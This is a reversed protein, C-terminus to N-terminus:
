SSQGVAFSVKRPVGGIGNAAVAAAAADMCSTPVKGSNTYAGSRTSSEATAVAAAKTPGSHVTHLSLAGECRSSYLDNEPTGSSSGGNSRLQHDPDDSAFNSCASTFAPGTLLEGGSSSGGSSGWHNGAAAARHYVTPSKHDASSRMLRDPSSNIQDQASHVVDADASVYEEPQQQRQQWGPLVQDRDPSQSRIVPLHQDHHCADSVKSNKSRIATDHDSFMPGGSSGDGNGSSSGLHTAFDSQLSSALSLKRGSAKAPTGPANTTSRKSVITSSSSAATCGDDTCTPLTSSTVNSSSSGNSVKRMIWDVVGGYRSGVSGDSSANADAAAAAAEFAADDGQQQQQQQCHLSKWPLLLSLLKVGIPQANSKVVDANPHDKVGQPSSSSSGLRVEGPAAAAAATSVMSNDSRPSVEFHSVVSMFSSSQNSVTRSWLPSHKFGQLGPLGAAAAGAAAQGAAAAAVKDDAFMFPFGPFPGDTSSGSYIQHHEDDYYVTDQKGLIPAAAAAAPSYPSQRAAAAAAVNNSVSVDVAEADANGGGANGNRSIAAAASRDHHDTIDVSQEYESLGNSSSSVLSSKRSSGSGSSSLLNAADSAAPQSRLDDHQQQALSNSSGHSAM